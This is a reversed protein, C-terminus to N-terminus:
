AFSEPPKLGPMAVPTCEDVNGSVLPMRVQRDVVRDITRRTHKQGIAVVLGDFLGATGAQNSGVNIWCLVGVLSLQLGQNGSQFPQAVRLNLHDFCLDRNQVDPDTHEASRWEHEPRLRTSQVQQLHKQLPRTILVAQEPERLDFAVDRNNSCEVQTIHVKPQQAITWIPQRRAYCAACRLCSRQVECLEKPQLPKCGNLDAGRRISCPSSVEGECM